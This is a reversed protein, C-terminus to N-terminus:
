LYVSHNTCCTPAYKPHWMDTNTKRVSQKRKCYQPHPTNSTNAEMYATQLGMVQIYVRKPGARRESLAPVPRPMEASSSAAGATMPVDAASPLAEEAELLSAPWPAQTPRDGRTRPVEGHAVTAQSGGSARSAQQPKRKPQAGLTISDWTVPAEQLRRDFIVSRRSAEAGDGAPVPPAAAASTTEPVDYFLRLIEEQFNETAEWADDEPNQIHPLIMFWCNKFPIKTNRILMGEQLRKIATMKNAENMQAWTMTTGDPNLCTPLNQIKSTTRDEKKSEVDNPFAGGVNQWHDLWALPRPKAPAQMSPNPGPSSPTEPRLRRLRERIDVDQYGMGYFSDVDYGNVHWFDQMRYSLRGETGSVQGKGPQTTHGRPNTTNSHSTAVMSLYKPTIANDGDVNILIQDADPWRKLVHMVWTAAFHSTNKGWSAHWFHLTPPYTDPVDVDPPDAGRGDMEAPAPGFRYPGFADPHNRLRLGTEGGSALVLLGEELAAHAAWQLFQLPREDREGFGVVTIVVDNRWSWCMCCNWLIATIANNWRGMVHMCLGIKKNGPVYDIIERAARAEQERLQFLYQYM